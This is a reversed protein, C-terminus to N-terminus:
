WILFTCVFLHRVIAPPTLVSLLTGARWNLQSASKDRRQVIRSFSYNPQKPSRGSVLQGHHMAGGCLGQGTALGLVSIFHSM